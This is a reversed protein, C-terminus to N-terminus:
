EIINAMKLITNYVENFDKHQILNECSFDGNNSMEIYEIIDNVLDMDKTEFSNELPANNFTRLRMVNINYIGNGIRKSAIITKFTKM